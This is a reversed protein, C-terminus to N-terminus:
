AARLRREVCKQVAEPSGAVRAAIEDVKLSEHYRLHVLTQAKGPLRKVCDRLAEEHQSAPRQRDEFSLQDFAAELASVIGPSLALPARKAQRLSKLVTKAAVGRAWAGFPRGADYRDLERWLVLAVEQFLDECHGRDWVISRIFARVTGQEPLFLALFREQRADGDHDPHGASVGRSERGRGSASLFFPYFQKKRDPKHTRPSLLVTSAGVMFRNRADGSAEAAESSGVNDRRRNMVDAPTVM